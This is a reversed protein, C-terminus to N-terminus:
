RPNTYNCSAKLIPKGFDSQLNVRGIGSNGIGIGLNAILLEHAFSRCSSPGQKADPNIISVDINYVAVVKKLFDINQHIKNTLHKM